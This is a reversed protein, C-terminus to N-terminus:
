ASEFLYRLLIRPRICSCIGPRQLCSQVIRCDWCPAWPCVQRRGQHGTKRTELIDDDIVVHLKEPLWIPTCSRRGFLWGAWGGVRVVVVGEAGGGHSVCGSYVLCWFMEVNDHCSGSNGFVNWASVGSEQKHRPCILDQYLWLVQTKKQMLILFPTLYHMLSIIFSKM